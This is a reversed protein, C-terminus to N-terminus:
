KQRLLCLRGALRHPIARALWRPGDSVKKTLPHHLVLGGVNGTGNFSWVGRSEGWDFLNAGNLEDKTEAAVDLTFQFILGMWVLRHYPGIGNADLDALKVQELTLPPGNAPTDNSSITKVNGGPASSANFFVAPETTDCWPAEGQGGVDLYTKGELDAALVKEIESGDKAEYRGRLAVFTIHQVFGVKIQDVGRNGQPGSLTVKASWTMGPTAPHSPTLGSRVLKTVVGNPQTGNLEATLGFRELESMTNADHTGSDDPTGAVFASGSPVPDEVTVKIVLIEKSALLQGGYWAELFVDAPVSNGFQLDITESTTNTSPDYYAGHIVIPTVVDPPPNVPDTIRIQWQPAVVNNDWTITYSYISNGPVAGPGVIQGRPRDSVKILGADISMDYVDAPVNFTNTEGTSAVM